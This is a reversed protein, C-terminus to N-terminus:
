KMEVISLTIGISYLAVDCAIWLQWVNCHKQLGSYYLIEFEYVFELFAKHAALLNDKSKHHRHIVHMAFVLKCFHHYFKQPLLCYLLTPCLGFIYVLYEVAKYGSLIKEASNYPVRSELCVPLYLGAGTVSVGYAQWVVNDHLVAFPWTTPDNDRVHDINGHWLSILLQSINLGFLHMTDAPFCKPVPVTKPLVSVISPKCIGTERHCCEYKHTSKSGLIHHLRENYEDLSPMIISNIDIDPHSSGLSVPGHPKLMASYYMGMGPKHYGPMSCLIQCRNRGHYGVWGNLKAMGVTDATAFGFWPCSHFSRQTSTDWILLGLNQCASLHAFTPFLFSDYHKPANSGGIVFTPLVMEKTHCIEPAFDVLTTIGFWTDSEKNQYLQASDMSLVLLM